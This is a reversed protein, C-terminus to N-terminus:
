EEESLVERGLRRHKILFATLFATGAFAISIAFTIMLSDVFARIVLERAAPTLYEKPFHV